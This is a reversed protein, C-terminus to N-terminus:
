SVKGAVRRVLIPPLSVQVIQLFQADLVQLQIVQLMAGGVQGIIFHHHLAYQREEVVAEGVDGQTELKPAEQFNSDVVRRFTIDETCVKVLQRALVSLVDEILEVVLGPRPRLPPTEPYLKEVDM